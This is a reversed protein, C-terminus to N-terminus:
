KVMDVQSSVIGICFSLIDLCFVGCRTVKTPDEFTDPCTETRTM